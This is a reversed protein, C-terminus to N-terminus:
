LGRHWETFKSCSSAPCRDSCGYIFMWCCMRNSWLYSASDGYCSKNSFLERTFVLLVQKYKM